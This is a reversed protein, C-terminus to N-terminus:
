DWTSGDDTSKLIFIGDGTRYAICITDGSAQIEPFKGGSSLDDVLTRVTWSTGNNSSRALCLEEGNSRTFVLNIYGSSKALSTMDDEAESVSVATSWTDGNDSSYRVYVNDDYYYSIVANDGEAFIDVNDVYGTEDTVQIPSWATGSNATRACRIVSNTGDSRVYVSKWVTASQAIGAIGGDNATYGFDTDIDSGSSFDASLFRAAYPSTDTYPVFLTSGYNVIDINGTTASTGGLALSDSTFSSATLADNIQVIGIHHGPGFEFQRYAVYLTNADTIAARVAPTAAFNNHSSSAVNDFTDGSDSSRYVNLVQTSGTVAAVFVYQDKIALGIMSNAAASTSVVTHAVPDPAPTRGGGDDDGDDCAFFSLAIVSLIIATIKFRNKM